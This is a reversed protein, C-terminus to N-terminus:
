PKDWLERPVRKSRKYPKQKDVWKKAGDWYELPKRLKVDYGRTLVLDHLKRDDESTQPNHRWDFKNHAFYGDDFNQGEAWPEYTNRRGKGRGKAKMAANEKAQMKAIVGEDDDSMKFSFM